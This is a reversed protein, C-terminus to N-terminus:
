PTTLRRRLILQKTFPRPWRYTVLSYEGVLNGDADTVLYIIETKNDPVPPNLQADTYGVGAGNSPTIHNVLLDELTYAGGSSDVESATLSRM